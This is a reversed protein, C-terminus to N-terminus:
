CQLIVVSQPHFTVALEYEKALWEFTAQSYFCVHTEDRKYYWNPFRSRDTVFQTMVGLWGGPKVVSLLRDWDSRPQTFHEVTESCTVFDYTRELPESFDAYLPDYIETRYGRESMLIALVPEPGSGFDLGLSHPSLLPVLVDLLRNLFAQYGAYGSDDPSNRHTDYRRRAAEASIHYRAPVYVLDCQPCSWYSRSRDQHFLSGGAHLCLPCHSDSHDM